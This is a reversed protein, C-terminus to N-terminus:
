DGETVATEFGLEKKKIAKNATGSIEGVKFKM